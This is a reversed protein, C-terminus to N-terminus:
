VMFAYQPSSTYIWMKEVEASAAPSYDAVREPRKIGASLRSGSSLINNFNIELFSFPRNYVPNIQSLVSVLPPSKHIHHYFKRNWLISPVKQTASCSNVEWSPNLEM